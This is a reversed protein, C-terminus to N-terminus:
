AAHIHRYRRADADREIEEAIRAATALPYNGEIRLRDIVLLAAALTERYGKDYGQKFDDRQTTTM